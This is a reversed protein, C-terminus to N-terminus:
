DEITRLGAPIRVPDPRRKPEAPTESVAPGTGRQATATATPPRTPVRPAEDPSYTHRYLASYVRTEVDRGAQVNRHEVMWEVWQLFEIDHMPQTIFKNTWTGAPCDYEAVTIATGGEPRMTVKVQGGGANAYSYLEIEAVAHSVPGAGWWAPQYATESTNQRQTPHLQLPLMPRGLFRDSFADDMLIPTPREKDRSWIRIMQDDELVDDGVTLARTGNARRLFLGWDGQPTQGVKFTAIGEPTQAILQGGEGITIDGHLIQDLAPRIQARGALERVRRELERIRDLLDLPIAAM